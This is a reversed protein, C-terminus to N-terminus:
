HDHVVFLRPPLGFYRTLAVNVAMGDSHEAAQVRQEPDPPLRPQPWPAAPPYERNPIALAHRLADNVIRTKPRQQARVAEALLQAVDPDLAVTLRM